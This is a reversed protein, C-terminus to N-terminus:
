FSRYLLGNSSNQCLFQYKFAYVACYFSYLILAIGLPARWLRDNYHDTEIYYLGAVLLVLSLVIIWM